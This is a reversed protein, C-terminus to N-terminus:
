TPPQQQKNNDNPDSVGALSPGPAVNRVRLAATSAAKPAHKPTPHAIRLGESFIYHGDKHRRSSVFAFVYVCKWITFIIHGTSQLIKYLGVM